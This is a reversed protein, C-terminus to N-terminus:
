LKMRSNKIENKPISCSTPRDKGFRMRTLKTRAKKNQLHRKILSVMFLHFVSSDCSQYKEMEQLCVDQSGLILRGLMCAFELNVVGDYVCVVTCAYLWVLTRKYWRGGM